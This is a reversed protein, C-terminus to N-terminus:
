GNGGGEFGNILLEDEVVELEFDRETTAGCNDEAQVGVTYVGLPGVSGLSVTGQADISANGAYSAPAVAVIPPLLTGNDILAQSPTVSSSQGLLLRRDAYNGLTPPMNLSVQVQLDGSDTAQGDSVQFRVTGSTATCSAALEASVIGATNLLNSVSIGTATGGAIVSVQLSGPASEADSVTGVTLAAGAPSGQQRSLPSAPTFSPPVNGTVQVALTVDRFAQCNDFIRITIVHNGGPSANGLSVVGAANVSVTGTYSGSSQVSIQQVTGNDSPGSAPNVTTSGGLALSTAAYSLTPLPNPLINIGLDGTSSDIGDNALFRLTGSTASCNASLAGRLMSGDISLASALVGTTTGGSQPAVAISAAPSEFDDVVGLATSAPLLTGQTITIPNDFILAPAENLNNGVYTYVRGEDPNGVGDVGPAGIALENGVSALALGYNDNDQGLRAHDRQLTFSVGAGRLFRYVNGPRQPSGSLRAANDAVYLYSGDFVASRGYASTSVTTPKDNFNGADAWDGNGDREFLYIRGEITGARPQGIALLSGDANLTLSDGFFAGSNTPSGLARFRQRLSWSAGAGNGNRQYEYAWGDANSEQPATVLLRDGRLLLRQGFLAGNNPTPLGLASHYVWAEFDGDFRYLQVQGGLGSTSARPAGVALWGADVALSSGFSADNNVALGVDISQPASYGNGVRTYAYVRGRNAGGANTFPAGVILQTSTLEVALGFADDLAPTPAQLFREFNFTANAQRQYVFVGGAPGATSNLNLNGPAGVALLAGERDLAHGYLKVPPVATEVPVLTQLSMGQALVAAGPLWSSLLLGCLARRWARCCSPFM